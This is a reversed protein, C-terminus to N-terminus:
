DEQIDNENEKERLKNIQYNLDLVKMDKFAAYQILKILSSVEKETLGRVIMLKNEGKYFIIKDEKGSVFDANTM